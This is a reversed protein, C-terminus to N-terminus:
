IYNWISKDKFSEFLLAIGLILLISTFGLLWYYRDPNVHEQVVTDVGQIYYVRITDRLKYEDSIAGQINVEAYKNFKRCGFSTIEANLLVEM